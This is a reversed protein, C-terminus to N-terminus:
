VTFGLVLVDDIRENNGEWNTLTQQLTQAQEDATKSAISALLKKFNKTMFKKGKEGGFQDHFGDSFLYVWDGNALTTTKTTFEFNPDTKGGIGRRDGKTEIIEDGRIVVLPNMAGAFDLQKTALDVSCLAIDMGDNAQSLAGKKRFMQLVHQNVHQLIEGPDNEGGDVIVNNLANHCTMSVFAGPVGHGTCDAAAIFVKGDRVHFWYFDGSVIDRPQWFIFHKPLFKAIEHSEPLIADQLSKAYMISATIDANKEEIIINQTTIEKNQDELLRNVKQKQRNSRFVVFLLIFALLLGIIAGITIANNRASEAEAKESKTKNHLALANAESAEAKRLASEKMLITKEKTLLEIEKEQMEVEFNKSAELNAENLLSDKIGSYLIQAEFANKYDKKKQYAAALQGYGDKVSELLGIEIAIETGKKFYEVAKNYDKIKYYYSGVSLTTEAMGRKDKLRRRIELSKQLYEFAKEFQNDNIHIGGINHYNVSLNYEAGTEKWIEASRYYYDLAKAYEGKGKYIIGINNMLKAASERRGMEEYIEMANEFYELTKDVKGTYYYVIAMGNYGSAVEARNGLAKAISVSEKYHEVAEKYNGKLRYTTAMNNHTRIRSLTDDLAIYRDHAKQYYELALDYKSQAAHAEGIVIESRAIVGENKSSKAIKLAKSAWKLQEETKDFDRYELAIKLTVRAKEALDTTNKTMTILSDIDLKQAM